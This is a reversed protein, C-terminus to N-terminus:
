YIDICNHTELAYRTRWLKDLLSNLEDMNKFRDELNRMEELALLSEDYRVKIQNIDINESCYLSGITGQPSLEDILVKNKEIYYQYSYSILSDISELGCKFTEPTSFLAFTPLTLSQKYDTYNFTYQSSLDQEWYSTNRYIIEGSTYSYPDLGGTHKEEKQSIEISISLINRMSSPLTIQRYRSPSSVFSISSLELDKIEQFLTDIATNDQFDVARVNLAKFASTRSFKENFTSQWIEQDFIYINRQSVLAMLPTIYFPLDFEEVAIYTEDVQDQEIRTMFFPYNKLYNNSSDIEGNVSLLPFGDECLLEITSDEFIYEVKELSTTESGKGYGVKKFINQLALEFELQSKTLENEQYTSVIHYAFIIFFSGVVIMFIWSLSMVVAGFKNM